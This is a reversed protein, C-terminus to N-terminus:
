IAKQFWVMDFDCGLKRGVSRFAGCREFGARSHFRLSQENLSSVSALLTDIGMERAGDILRSLMRTGVGRGTHEPLLFYGAEATRLFTPCPHFARLFGFGVVEGSKTRVSVAPYGKSMALIRDFFEPGVREEPYAAFSNEIFHNFIAIVSERDDESLPTLDYDM